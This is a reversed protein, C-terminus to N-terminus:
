LLDCLWTHDKVLPGPRFDYILPIHRKQTCADLKVMGRRQEQM